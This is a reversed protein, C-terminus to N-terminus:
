QHQGVLGACQQKDGQFRTCPWQRILILLSSCRKSRILAWPDIAVHCLHRSQLRLQAAHACGHAGRLVRSIHSSLISGLVAGVECGRHTRLENNTDRHANTTAFAFSRAAYRRAAKQCARVIRRAQGFCVGVGRCKKTVVRRDRSTRLRGPQHCGALLQERGDLSQAGSGRGARRGQVLEVRDEALQGGDRLHM